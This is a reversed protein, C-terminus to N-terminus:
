STKKISEYEAALKSELKVTSEQVHGDLPMGRAPKVMPNDGMAAPPYMRKRGNDGEGPNDTSAKISAYKNKDGSNIPREEEEPEKVETDGYTEKTKALAEELKQTDLGAIKMMQILEQTEKITKETDKHDHEDDCECESKGCDDCVEKSEDVPIEQGFVHATKDGHKKANEKEHKIWEGRSEEDVPIDQGFAHVSKEGKEKAHKKLDNIYEGHSEEDIGYGGEASMPDEGMFHSEEMGGTGAGMNQEGTIGANRALEDLEQEITKAPKPADLKTMGPHMSRKADQQQVAPPTLKPAGMAKRQVAPVEYPVPNNEEMHHRHLQMAGHLLDSCEGTMKYKSYHDNLENMCEELGMGHKKALAQFNVSENIDKAIKHAKKIVKKPLDHAPTKTIGAAKKAAAMGIAYKNKVKGAEGVVGGMTGQAGGMSAIDEEMNGCECVDESVGCEGCIGINEDMKDYKARIKAMKEKGAGERGAKRLAEMGNRGYKKDGLYAQLGSEEVSTEEFMQALKVEVDSVDRLGKLISGQAEVSERIMQAKDKIVDASTPELAKLKGLISYLNDHPHNQSM